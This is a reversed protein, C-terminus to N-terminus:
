NSDSKSLFCLIEMNRLIWSSIYGVVQKPYWFGQRVLNRIYISQYTFTVSTYRGDRIMMDLIIYMSSLFKEMNKLYYLFLDTCICNKFYKSGFSTSYKDISLLSHFTWFPSCKISPFQATSPLFSPSFKRVSGTSSKCPCNAVPFLETGWFILHLKYAASTINWM